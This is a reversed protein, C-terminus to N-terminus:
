SGPLAHVGLMLRRVDGDCRFSEILLYISLFLMGGFLAVPALLWGSISFGNRWATWLASLVLFCSFDVNFQGPWALRKIDGFFVPILNWGHDIVVIATYGVIVILLTLLLVRLGTM